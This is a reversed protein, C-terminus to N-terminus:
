DRRVCIGTDKPGYSAIVVTEVAGSKTLFIALFSPQPAHAQTRAYMHAHTHTQMPSHTIRSYILCQSLCVLSGFGLSTKLLSLVYSRSKRELTAGPNCTAFLIWLLDFQSKTLTTWCESRNETEGLTYAGNTFATIAPSTFVALVHVM